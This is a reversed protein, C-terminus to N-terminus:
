DDVHTVHKQKPQNQMNIAGEAKKKDHLRVKRRPTRTEGFDQDAEVIDRGWSYGISM